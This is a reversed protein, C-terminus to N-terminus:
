LYACVARIIFKAESGIVNINAMSATTTKLNFYYPTAVTIPLTKLRYVMGYYAGSAMTTNALELFSTFDADSETNNVTSLTSYITVTLSGTGTPGVGIGGQYSLNWLGIPLTISDANINYWTGSTPNTQTRDVTDSFTVTWLTPDLPFGYPTRDMSYFPATITVNAFAYATGFYVTITTTAVATIFGYLTSAGQGFKVKMGICYRATAGTPVTIVGTVNTDDKSAYTWTENADIWGLYSRLVPAVHTKNTFIEAGTLSAAQDNTPIGALKYTITSKNTEGAIGVYLELKKIGSNADTHLKAHDVVDEFDTGNPDTLTSYATPFTSM